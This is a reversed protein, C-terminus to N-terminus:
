EERFPRARGCGPRRGRVHEDAIPVVTSPPLSLRRRRAVSPEKRSRPGFRQEPVLPMPREPWKPEHSRRPPGRAEWAGRRARLGRTAEHGGAVWVSRSAGCVAGQGGVARIREAAKLRGGHPGWTLGLDQDGWARVSGPLSSESGQHGRPRWCSLHERMRPKTSSTRAPPCHRARRPRARTSPLPGRACAAVIRPELCQQEKMASSCTRPLSDTTLLALGRRARQQGVPM